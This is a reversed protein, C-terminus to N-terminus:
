LFVASSPVCVAPCDGLKCHTIRNAAAKKLFLFDFEMETCANMARKATYDANQPTDQM